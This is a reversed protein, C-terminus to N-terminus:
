QVRALDQHPQCVRKRVMWREVRTDGLQRVSADGFFKRRCNLSDPGRARNRTITGRTRWWPRLDRHPIVKPKLSGWPWRWSKTSPRLSAKTNIIVMSAFKTWVLCSLRNTPMRIPTEGDRTTCERAQVRLDDYIPRM